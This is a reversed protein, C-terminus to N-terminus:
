IGFLRQANHSRVQAGEESTMGRVGGVPGAVRAAIVPRAEEALVTIAKLYDETAPMIKSFDM